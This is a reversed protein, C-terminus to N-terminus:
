GLLGLGVRSAQTYEHAPYVLTDAPLSLLKSLSEWM